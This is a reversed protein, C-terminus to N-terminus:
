IVHREKSGGQQGEMDRLRYGERSKVLSGESRIDVREELLKLSLPHFIDIHIASEKNGTFRRSSKIGDIEDFPHTFVWGDENKLSMIHPIISVEDQAFRFLSRVVQEGNDGLTFEEVKKELDIGTFLRGGEYHYADTAIFPEGSVEYITLGQSDTLLERPDTRSSFIKIIKSTHPIGKEKIQALFTPSSWDEFHIFM